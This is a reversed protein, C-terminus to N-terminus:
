KAIFNQKSYIFCFGLWLSAPTWKRLDCGLLLSPNLWHFRLYTWVGGKTKEPEWWHVPYKKAWTFSNRNTNRPSPHLKFQGITFLTKRPVHLVKRRLFQQCNQSLDDQIQFGCLIQEIWLYLHAHFQRCYYRPLSVVFYTPINELPM